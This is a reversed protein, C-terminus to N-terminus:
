ETRAVGRAIYEAYFGGKANVLALAYVRDGQKFREVQEGVAAITGAVDSGLM